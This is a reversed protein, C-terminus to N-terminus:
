ACRWQNRYGGALPLSAARQALGKLYDFDDEALRRVEGLADVAVNPEFLAVTFGDPHVPTSRTLALVLSERTPTYSPGDPHPSSRHRWGSHSPSNTMPSSAELLASEPASPLLSPGSMCLFGVVVLVVIVVKGLRTTINSTRHGVAESTALVEPQYKM